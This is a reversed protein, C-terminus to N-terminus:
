PAPSPKTGNALKQMDADFTIGDFPIVLVKSGHPMNGKDDEKPIAISCTKPLSPAPRPEGLRSVRHQGPQNKRGCFIKTKGTCGHIIVRVDGECSFAM